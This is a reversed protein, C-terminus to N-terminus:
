KNSWLSSITTVSYSVASEGVDASWILLANVRMEYRRDLGNDRKYLRIAYLSIMM